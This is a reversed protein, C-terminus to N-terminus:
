VIFVHLQFCHCTNLNSESSRIDVVSKEFVSKTIKVSRETKSNMEYGYQLKCSSFRLSLIKLEIINQFLINMRDDYCEIVM